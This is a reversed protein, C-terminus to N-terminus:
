IELVRGVTGKPMAPENEARVILVNAQALTFATGLPAVVNTVGRAHLSVVDFNEEVLVAEGQQRIAQRAQLLGFLHEGKTYIPSEPSNIYKAPAADPASTPAPIKLAALEDPTPDPLSPDHLSHSLKGGTGPAIVEAFM